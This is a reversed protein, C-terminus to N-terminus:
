LKLFRFVSPNSEYLGVIVTKETLKYELHLNNM